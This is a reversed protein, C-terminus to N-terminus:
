YKLRPLKVFVNWLADTQVPWSLQLLIKKIKREKRKKGEEKREKMRAKELQQSYPSSKMSTHLSRITTAEKTTSCLNWPEHAETNIVHPSM